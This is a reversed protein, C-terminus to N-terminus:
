LELVYILYVVKIYASGFLLIELHLTDKEAKFLIIDTHNTWQVVNVGSLTMKTYVKKSLYKGKYSFNFQRSTKESTVEGGGSAM